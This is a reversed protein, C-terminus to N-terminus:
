TGARDGARGALGSFFATIEANALDPREYHVFQGVEQAPDFRCDGFCDAPTQHDWALEDAVAEGNM